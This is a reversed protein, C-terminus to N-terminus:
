SSSSSSSSTSASSSSSTTGGPSTTSKQSEVSSQTSTQSINNESVDGAESEGGVRCDARQVAWYHNCANNEPDWVTAEGCEFDYRKYSGNGNDVCRYFKKCNDSVHFFGEKSCTDTSLASTTSGSTSPTSSTAIGATTESPQETSGGVTATTVQNNYSGDAPPHQSTTSQQESLVQEGNGTQTEKPPENQGSNTDNCKSGTNEQGPSGSGELNGGQGPVGGQGLSDGQGSV